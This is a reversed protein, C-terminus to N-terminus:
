LNHLMNDTNLWHSLFDVQFRQRDLRRLVGMLWNTLAV